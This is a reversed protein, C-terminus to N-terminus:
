ESDRYDLTFTGLVLNGDIGDDEPQFTIGTERLNSVVPVGASTFAYLAARVALKAARYDAHAHARATSTRAMSGIQFSYTRRANRGSQEALSDGLDRFLLLRAGDTLDSPSSPNEVVPKGGLTADTRLVGLVVEGIEFPLGQPHPDPTSM